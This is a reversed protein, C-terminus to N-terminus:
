YIYSKGNELQWTGAALTSNIMLNGQLDTLNDEQDLHSFCASGLQPVQRLRQGIPFPLTRLQRLKTFQIHLPHPTWGARWQKLNDKKAM